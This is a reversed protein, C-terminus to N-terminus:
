PIPMWHTICTTTWRGNIRHAVEYWTADCLRIRVLVSEAEEPLREEVSIWRPVRAKNLKVIVSKLKGIQEKQKEAIDITHQHNNKADSLEAELQQILALADASLARICTFPLAEGAFYLCETWCKGVSLCSVLGKKIEDPTKTM